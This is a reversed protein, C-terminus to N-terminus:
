VPFMTEISLPVHLLNEFCNEPHLDFLYLLIKYILPFPLYFKSNKLILAFEEMRMRQQEGIIEWRLCYWPSSFREIEAVRLNLLPFLNEVFYLSKAPHTRISESFNLIDRKVSALVALHIDILVLKEYYSYDQLNYSYYTEVQFAFKQDTSHLRQIKKKLGIVKLDVYNWINQLMMEDGLTVDALFPYKSILLESSYEM